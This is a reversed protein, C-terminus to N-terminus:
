GPNNDLRVVIARTSDCMPPHDGPPPGLGGGGLGGHGDGVPPPGGFGGPPPGGLGDPPPGGFGGPPPPPQAAIVILVGTSTNGGNWNLVLDNATSVSDGKTPSTVNLLAAPATLSTTFASFKSSGSVDFQYAGGSIFEINTGGERPGFSSTFIVGGDPGTHQLLALHNSGYNVYVSGMDVGGRGVSSGAAQIGDFGIAMAQGITSETQIRPNFMQRWCLTFIGKTNTTDVGALRLLTLESRAVGAALANEATNNSSGITAQTSESKDSCGPIMLGLLLLAASIIIVSRNMM